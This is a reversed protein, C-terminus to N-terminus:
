EILGNVHMDIYGILFHKHPRVKCKFNFSTIKMQTKYNQLKLYIKKTLYVKESITFKKIHGLKTIRM